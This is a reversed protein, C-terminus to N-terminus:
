GFGLQYCFVKAETDNFHDDCVTGWTGNYSVELRGEYTVRSGALRVSCRRFYCRPRNSSPHTVASLYVMETYL